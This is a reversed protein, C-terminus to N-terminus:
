FLKLKPPGAVKDKSSTKRNESPAVPLAPQATTPELADDHRQPPTAPSALSSPRSSALSEDASEVPSAGPETQGLGDDRGSEPRVDALESAIEPRGPTEGAAFETPPAPPRKPSVADMIGSGLLGELSLDRGAGAKPANESAGSPVSEPFAPRSADASVNGVPEAEALSSAETRIESTGASDVNARVAEVGSQDPSSVATEEGPLRLLTLEEGGQGNEPRSLPEEPSPPSPKPTAFYFSDTTKHYGTKAMDQGATEAQIFAHVARVKADIEDLCNLVLAELIKPTVPSGKEQAGHHALLMHEVLLLKESPFDPLSNAAKELFIPGMTVHGLLRGRVSYDIIPAASLEFCKGLDHLIAGVVLLDRNLTTGYHDSLFAAMTAVSLSHELLGGAYAHHIVKAAPHTWFCETEPFSFVAKVLAKLDRDKLSDALAWFKEKMIEVSEPATAMFDSLLYSGSTEAKASTLSLQLKNKYSDLRAEVRCVAGATLVAAVEPTSNWYKAQIEGTKDVLSLNLYDDGKVTQAQGVSQVLLEASIKSGVPMKKIDEVFVSKLVCM